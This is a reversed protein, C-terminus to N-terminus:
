SQSYWQPRGTHLVSCWNFVVERCAGVLAAHAARPCKRKVTCKQPCLWGCSHFVASESLMNNFMKTERVKNGLLYQVFCLERELSQPLNKEPTCAGLCQPKSAPLLNLFVQAHMPSESQSPCHQQLCPQLFWGSVQPHIALLWIYLFVLSQDFPKMGLYRVPEGLKLIHREQSFGLYWGYYMEPSLIHLIYYGKFGYNCISFRGLLATVMNRLHTTMGTICNCDQCTSDTPCCTFLASCYTCGLSIYM